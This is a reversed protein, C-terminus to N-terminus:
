DLFTVNSRLGAAPRERNILVRHWGELVITAHDPHRVYGRVYVESDAVRTQPRYRRFDDDWRAKARYENWTYVRNAVVYVTEGGIRVLEECIHPKSKANRQLPENRLIAEGDLSRGAPVFFWEGQRKFISNDRNDVKSPKVTGAWERVAVPMLARKAARVTSVTEALEAVFWHREDHGCLFRNGRSTLLLLHREKPMTQLIEFEPARDTLAFDFFPGRRDRGVDITFSPRRGNLLRSQADLARFKVRAGMAEFHKSLSDQRM